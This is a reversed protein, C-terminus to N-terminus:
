LLLVGIIWLARGAAYMPVLNVPLNIGLQTQCMKVPSDNDYIFSYQLTYYLSNHRHSGQLVM